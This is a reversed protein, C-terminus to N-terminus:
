FLEWGIDYSGGSGGFDDVEFIYISDDLLSVTAGESNGPFASTDVVQFVGNGDPDAWVYLDLDTGGLEGLIDVSVIGGAPIVPTRFFDSHGGSCIFAETYWDAPLQAATDISFNPSFGDDGNCVFNETLMVRFQSEVNDQDVVQLHFDTNPNGNIVFTEGDGTKSGTVALTGDTYISVEPESSLSDFAVYVRYEIGSQTPLEFWDTDGPCLYGWYESEATVAYATSLDDNPEFIDTTCYACAGGDDIMGNCDNDVGDCVEPMVNPVASCEAGGALDCVITGTTQCAGMGATCSMGVNFGDDITNNCDNDLGDCIETEGPNRFPNTDDCDDGPTCNDGYGDNDVDVCNPAQVICMGGACTENAGPCNAAAGWTGCTPQAPDPECSQIQGGACQVAGIACATAPCGPDADPEDMDPDAGMDPEGFDEGTGLDPTDVNDGNNNNRGDNNFDPVANRPTEDRDDHLINAPEAPPEDGGCSALVFASLVFGIKWWRFM